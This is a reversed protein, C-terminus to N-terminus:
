PVLKKQCNKCDHCTVYHLMELEHLLLLVPFAGDVHVHAECGEHVGLMRKAFAFAWDVVVPVPTELMGGEGLVLGCPTNLSLFM